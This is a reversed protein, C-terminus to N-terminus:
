NRELITVDPMLNAAVPQYHIIYRKEDYSVPYHSLLYDLSEPYFGNQIYCTVISKHVAEELRNKQHASSQESFASISRSFLLLVLFFLFPYIKKM